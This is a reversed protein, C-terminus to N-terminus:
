SKTVSNHKLPMVNRGNKEGIFTYKVESRNLEPQVTSHFLEVLTSVHLVVNKKKFQNLMRKM